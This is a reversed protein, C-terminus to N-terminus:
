IYSLLKAFLWDLLDVPKNEAIWNDVWLTIPISGPTYREAFAVDVDDTEQGAVKYSGAPYPYESSAGKLVFIVHNTDFHQFYDLDATSGWTPDIQVWGKEPLYIQVWAHLVDNVTPLNEDADTFAYGNVERAPIGLSRMLSITVDTYDTCIAKNPNNLAHVAGSRSVSAIDRLKTFDYALTQTVYAYVTRAVTEVEDHEVKDLIAQRANKIEEADYEWYTDKQTFFAPPTAHLPETIENLTKQTLVIQGKFEVTVNAGAEILYQALINGEQDYSVSYPAPELSTLYTKQYPPMSPPLAIEYLAQYDKPNHLHYRLSVNTLQKDGLGLVVRIPRSIDEFTYRLQRVTEDRTYENPLPDSYDLEGLEVPVTVQIAYSRIREDREVQPLIIEWMSGVQKVTGSINYSLIWNMQSGRGILLQDFTVTIVTFGGREETTVPLATGNSEATLNSIKLGELALTYQSPYQDDTENTITIYERVLMSGDIQIDYQVDYDAPFSSANAKAPFCLVVVILVCFFLCHFFLSKPM